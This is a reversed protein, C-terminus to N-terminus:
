KGGIFTRIFRNANSSSTIKAVTDSSHALFEVEVNTRTSEGIKESLNIRYLGGFASVLENNTYAEMTGSEPDFEVVRAGLLRLTEYCKNTTSKIDAEVILLAKKFLFYRAQHSNKGMRKYANRFAISYFCFFLFNLLVIINIEFGLLTGIIGFKSLTLYKYGFRYLLTNIAIFFAFAMLLCIYIYFNRKVKKWNKEDVPMRTTKLVRLAPSRHKQALGRIQLAVNAAATLIPPTAAICATIISAIATFNVETIAAM